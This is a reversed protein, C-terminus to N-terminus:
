KRGGKAGNERAEIFKKIEKEFPDAEILRDKMRNAIAKKYLGAIRSEGSNMWTQFDDWLLANAFDELRTAEMDDLDYALGEAGKQQIDEECEEATALFNAILYDETFIKNM